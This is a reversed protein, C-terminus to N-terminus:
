PTSSKIQNIFADIQNNVSEDRVLGKYQELSKIAAEKNGLNFHAEGLGLYADAYAPYWAILNTYREIAKDHQGSTIALRALYSNAKLHKPEQKVIDLLAQIGRMPAATGTVIVNALDAQMDLDNPALQTAKEMNSIASTYLFGSLLTDNALEAAAQYRSGAVMYNVAQPDLDAAAQYHVGAAAWDSKTDWFAALSRHLAAKQAANDVTDLAAMIPALKEREEPKLSSAAIELLADKDMGRSAEIVPATTDQTLVTMKGFLYISLGLAIVATVVLIQQKNM